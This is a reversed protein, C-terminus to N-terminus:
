EPFTILPKGPKTPDATLVELLAAFIRRDSVTSRLRETRLHDFVPRFLRGLENRPTQHILDRLRFMEIRKDLHDSFCEAPLPLGSLLGYHVLTGGPRLARMLDLGGPGGVSDFAADAGQRGTLHALREPWERDVTTVIDRWLSPNDVTRGPTGRSLGIPKIGNLNLLEALHGAITSTAATIVVTATEGTIFREVMQSATLPNIYAFCAIEDPIDDPVPVCWAYDTRKIQQWNGASGIPLVRQGVAERPVGPGIRTIVGIGEFGPVLPFATRSGYTGSITVLDSPNVTTALMRVAVEGGGLGEPEDVNRIQVATGAAGPSDAVAALM